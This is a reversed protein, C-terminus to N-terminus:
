EGWIFPRHTNLIAIKASAESRCHQGVTESWFRPCGALRENSRYVLKAKKQRLLESFFDHWLAGHSVSYVSGADEFLNNLRSFSRTMLKPAAFVIVGM